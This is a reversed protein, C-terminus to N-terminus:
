ISRIFINKFYNFYSYADYEFLPRIVSKILLDFTYTYLIKQTLFCYSKCKHIVFKQMALTM